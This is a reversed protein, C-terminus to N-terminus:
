ARGGPPQRYSSLSTLMVSFEAAVFLGNAAVFLCILATPILFEM